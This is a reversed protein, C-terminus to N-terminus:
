DNEKGLNETYNELDEVTIAGNEGTGEIGAVEAADLGLEVALEGAEDSAFDIEPEESAKIAADVDAATIADDKGSGKVKSFDLGSEVAKDRAAKSAFNLGDVPPKEEPEEAKPPAGEPVKGQYLKHKKEDFDAKNITVFDGQDKSWPQVRVTECTESM